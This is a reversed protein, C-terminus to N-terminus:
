KIIRFQWTSAGPDVTVSGPNILGISVTDAASVRAFSIAYSGSLNAGPNVTVADGVQAGTVTVTIVTNSGASLSPPNVSVSSSLINAASAQVSGDSFRIEAPGVLRLDGWTELEGGGVLRLGGDVNIEAVNSNGVKFEAIANSLGTGLLRQAVLAPAQAGTTESRAWVAAGTGFNVARVTACDGCSGNMEAYVGNTNSVGKVFNAIVDNALSAAVDLRAAPAATGIGVDGDNEFTVFSPNTAYNDSAGYTFRLSSPSTTTSTRRVIGWTDVINGGSIEKLAIASAWNGGATSYLGIVADDAEVILEDNELAASSLALDLTRLHLRAQPADDGLGLDGNNLLRLKTSEDQGQIALGNAGGPSTGGYRIRAVDNLWSLQVSAGDNNPNFVHIGNSAGGRSYIDGVVHLPAQPDSVGIGVEGQDYYVDTGNLQWASWNAPGSLAYSAYPTTRLRQRPQLITYATPGDPRVEIELWLATGGFVAGFNPDVTFLGDLVNVVPKTVGDHIQMSGVQNGGSAADYLRFRMDYPGNAPAGGSTLHGQFTFANGVGEAHVAASSGLLAVLAALTQYPACRVSRPM